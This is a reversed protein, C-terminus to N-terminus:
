VADRISHIAHLRARFVVNPAPIGTVLAVMLLPVLRAVLVPLLGRPCDSCNSLFFLLSASRYAQMVRQRLAQAEALLAPPLSNILDEESTLLVEERLEPSFTALVTAFDMEAAAGAASGAAGGQFWARWVCATVSASSFLLLSLCTQLPPYQLSLGDTGSPWVCWVSLVFNCAHWLAGSLSHNDAASPSSYLWQQLQEVTHMQCFAHGKGSEGIDVQSYATQASLLQAQVRHQNALCAVVCHQLLAILM